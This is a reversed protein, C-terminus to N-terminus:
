RPNLAAGPEHGRLVASVMVPSVRAVMKWERGFPDSWNRIRMALSLRQAMGPAASLQSQNGLMGKKEM